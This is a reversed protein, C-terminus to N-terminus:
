LGAGGSRAPPQTRAVRAGGASCPVPRSAGQPRPGPSRIWVAGKMDSPRVSVTRPGPGIPQSYNSCVLSPSPIFSRVICHFPSGPACSLLDVPASTLNIALFRLILWPPAAARLWASSQALGVEKESLRASNPSFLRFTIFTSRLRRRAHCM